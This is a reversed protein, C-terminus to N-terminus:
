AALAPTFMFAKRTDSMRMDLRRAAHTVANAPGIENTPIATGCRTFLMVFVLAGATIIGPHKIVPDRIVSNQSRIALHTNAGVSIDILETVATNRTGTTIATM